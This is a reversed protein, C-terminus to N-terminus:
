YDYPRNMLEYNRLAQVEPRKLNFILQIVRHIEGQLFLSLSHMFYFAFFRDKKGFFAKTCLYLPQGDREM